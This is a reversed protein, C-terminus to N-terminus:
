AGTAPAAVPTAVPPTEPAPAAPPAAPADGAPSAGPAAFVEVNGTAADQLKITEASFVGQILALETQLGRQENALAEQQKEIEALRSAVINGRSALVMSALDPKVIAPRQPQRPAEAGQKM